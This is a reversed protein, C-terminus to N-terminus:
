SAAADALEVKEKLIDRKEMLFVYFYNLFVGVFFLLVSLLYADRLNTHEDLNIINYIIYFSTLGMAFFFIINAILIPYCLLRSDDKFIVSLAMCGM